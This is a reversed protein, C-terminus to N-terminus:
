LRNLRTISLQEYYNILSFYQQFYIIKSDNINMSNSNDNQIILINYVNYKMNILDITFGYIEYITLIRGAKLSLSGKCLQDLRLLSDQSIMKDVKQYLLVRNLKHYWNSNLIITNLDYNSHKDIKVVINQILLLSEKNYLDATIKALYDYIKQQFIYETDSFFKDQDWLANLCQLTIHIREIKNEKDAVKLNETILVKFADYIGMNSSNMWTNDERGSMAGPCQKFDWAKKCIVPHFPLNNQGIFVWFAYPRDIFDLLIKMLQEDYALQIEQAKVAMTWLYTNQANEILFDRSMPVVQNILNNLIDEPRYKFTHNSNIWILVTDALNSLLQFQVLKQVDYNYAMKDVFNLLTTELFDTNIQVSAEMGLLNQLQLLLYYSGSIDIPTNEVAQSIRTVIEIVKDQQQMARQQNQCQNLYQEIISQNQLDANKLIFGQNLAQSDSQSFLTSQNNMM